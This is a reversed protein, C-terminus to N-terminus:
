ANNNNVIRHQSDPRKRCALRAEVCPCVDVAAAHVSLMSLSSKSVGRRVITTIMETVMMIITIVVVFEYVVFM